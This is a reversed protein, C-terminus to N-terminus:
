DKLLKLLEYRGKTLADEYSLNNKIIMKAIPLIIKNAQEETIINLVGIFWHLHLDAYLKRHLAEDKSSEFTAHLADIQSMDLKKSFIENMEDIDINFEKSLPETVDERWKFSNLERIKMEHLLDESM